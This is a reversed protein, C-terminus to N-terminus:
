PTNLRSTVPLILIMIKLDILGHLSRQQSKLSFLQGPTETM